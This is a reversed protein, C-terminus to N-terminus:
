LHQPLQHLLPEHLAQALAAALGGEHVLDTVRQTGCLLVPGGGIQQALERATQEDVWRMCIVSEGVLAEGVLATVFRQM